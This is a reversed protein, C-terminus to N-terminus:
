RRRSGSRRRISPATVRHTVGTRASAYAAELVASTRAADNLTCPSPTGHRVAALFDRVFREGSAGGYSNTKPQKFYIRRRTSRGAPGPLELYLSPRTVGGWVIRGLTGHIALRSDFGARNGYGNGSHALVYGMHLSGIAGSAFNLTAVGVNEVDIGDEALTGIMAAVATIREGMVHAFLDFYHCGLWALVGGGSVARSFLWHAPSRFRVQTTILRGEVTLVRGLAGSSIMQRMWQVAPHSRQGYLVSALLGRDRALRALRAVVAARTSVPKDLLVHKGSRMLRGAIKPADHTPVCVLTVTISRDELIASLEVTLRKVKGFEAGGLCRFERAHAAWVTVEAVEPINELTRLLLLSHPHNLGVLGVSVGALQTNRNM